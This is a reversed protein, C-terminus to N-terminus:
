FLPLTVIFTAGAGLRSEVAITGQHREIIERCLYLGLGLGSVGHPEVAREFRHFIREHNKPDIGPGRDKVKIKIISDEKEVDISVLTNNGYLLANQILNTLVQEIRFKDGKITFIETPNFIINHNQITIQRVLDNILETIDFKESQFSLKGDEIRSIDLMDDVLRTLRQTSKSTADALKLLDEPSVVGNKIELKKLALHTQLKLSTLPTKLEHSAISLFEDRRKLADVRDTVDNGIVVVGRIVGTNLDKDPIYHVDFWREDCEPSNMCIEFQVHNGDLALTEFKYARQATVSDAFEDRRKGVIQEAEIGFWKEYSKNAFQYRRDTDFYGVFAPLHDTIVKLLYHNM